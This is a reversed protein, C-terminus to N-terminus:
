DYLLVALVDMIISELLKAVVLTLIVPRNNGTKGIGGKKFILIVNTGKWDAPIMGSIQAIKFCSGGVCGSDRRYHPTVKNLFLLHQPVKCPLHHFTKVLPHTEFLPVYSCSLPSTM